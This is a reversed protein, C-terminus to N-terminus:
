FQRISLRIPEVIKRNNKENILIQLSVDPVILWFSSKKYISFVGSGELM